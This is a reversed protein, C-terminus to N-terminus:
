HSLIGHEYLTQEIFAARHQWMNERHTRQYAAERMREREEERALYYRVKQALEEPDDFCDIEKKEEYYLGIEPTREHLMFGGCSPIHFTRSTINDGSPSEKVAENMVALNIKTANVVAVYLDGFPPNQRVIHSQLEPCSCRQWGPGWIKLDIEPFARVLERMYMEKKASRQAVYSVDSGFLGRLRDDLRIKRHLAEIAAHPMFCANPNHFRERLIPLHFTKTTFIYDYLPLCQPIRKGHNLLSVDPYFLVCKRGRERLKRLTSAELLHGKAVVVLDSEMLADERLVMQQYSRLIQFMLLRHLVKGCFDSWMPEAKYADVM